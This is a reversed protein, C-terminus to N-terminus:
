RKTGEVAQSHDCTVDHGYEDSVRMHPGEGGETSVTVRRNCEKCWWENREPNASLDTPIGAPRQRTLHGVSLFSEGDHRMGVDDTSGCEDVFEELTKGSM